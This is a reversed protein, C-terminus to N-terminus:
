PQPVCQAKPVQCHGLYQLLLQPWWWAPSLTGPCLVPTHSSGAGGTADGRGTVGCAPSEDERRFLVSPHPITMGRWMSQM